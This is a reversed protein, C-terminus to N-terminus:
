GALSLRKPFCFQVGNCKIHQWSCWGCNIVVAKTYPYLHLIGQQQVHFIKHKCIVKFVDLSSEDLHILYLILALREGWFSWAVCPESSWHNFETSQLPSIVDWQWQTHTTTHTQTHRYSLVSAVIFSIRLHCCKEWGPAEETPLFRGSLGMLMLFVAFPDSTLYKIHEEYSAPM